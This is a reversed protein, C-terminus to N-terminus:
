KSPTSASTRQCCGARPRTSGASNMGTASCVPCITVSPRQTSACAQRSTWTHCARRGSPRWTRTDTLTEATCSECDSMQASTWFASLIEESSGPLRTISSVSLTSICFVSSTSAVSSLSFVSPTRM